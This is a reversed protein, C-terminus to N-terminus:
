DAIIGKALLVPGGGRTNCTLAVSGRHPQQICVVQGVNVRSATEVSASYVIAGQAATAMLLLCVMSGGLVKRMAEERYTQFGRLPEIELDNLKAKGKEYLDIAFKAYEAPQDTAVSFLLSAPGCLGANAQDIKGPTVVREALSNAVRARVLTFFAASTTRAKFDAISDLAQQVKPPHPM